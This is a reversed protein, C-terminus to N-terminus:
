YKIIVKKNFTTYNTEIKILYSGESISKVPIRITDSLPLNVANWSAVTQGAINILYVQKVQISSPTNIYIENTTQLYNVMIDKFDTDVTSLTTDEQFVLFFRNSYHGAELTIQFSIDNFQTYTGHLADYIFIEIDEEFNELSDLQIEITGGYTLDIDLPYSKTEDFSGVGQIIYKEGEINFSMDNSFTDNNLADYGYDVADTAVNNDMFGLLLHRKANEPSVFDIRIYKNSNETEINTNTTRMFISNGGSEKVFARQNNNFQITGGTANGTVFFGQGVPVYRRPIKNADGVGNINPPSVAATGGTLNLYSYGGEYDALYHSASTSSQEWFYLTGDLLVASNDAIFTHADIASPYPNGVLAQYDPTVPSSIIGNNPQGVFTYNQFSGSNGSGKMTFGLGVSIPTTESIVNWDAYSAEPYNEYLYLWRRSMTVPSTSGNANPSSTWLVPQPNNVITGDQLISGISYTNGDSSVPSGWYNYAFLNATGQQDRQLNGTGSYDVISSSTQLLQSEGVLDLTGNINLYKTILLSQDNTISYTNTDVLLGMLTTTRNGSNINHSTRVINWNVNNTNPIMQVNGNLWTNVSDWNGNDASIYPLPASEEQLSTINSLRGSVGVDGVLYGAAIDSTGQNMQYYADLNSWNLGTIDLGLVSGRVTTNDEIEQNMMERIQESSLAVNWFRLEDMWGNFYNAPINNPRSMAGLLMDNANAAPNPGASSNRQIGDVYLTYSTGNYTIVVHYWRNSTIGNASINYGNAHFSITNNVLRLDYGTAFNNANRKSLITQINGNITNPKVWVEISFSGSLSNNNNFNVFDNNGDFDIYDGCVPFSVNFTSTDDACPAANDLTWTIDYSVGSEGTFTANPDNINSFSFSSGSPVSVATWHGTMNGSLNIVTDDCDTITTTTSASANVFPIVNILISDSAMGCPGTGDPDNTTYTLTVTGSTEGPGITYIANPLSSNDFSGTGGSWIGPTNSSANLAVTNSSSCATIDTGANVTAAENITVIMVDSAFSCVGAPNNTTYTLTVTGNAIDAASPTYINGAFNGTGSTSWSASSASGGFSAPTLDVTDNSCITQNGGTTVTAAPNVTITVTDTESACPGAPNNSTLTLTVTGSTISPTYSANLDNPNSFSGSPASWTASGASGGISGNLVINGDSCITQNVGAYVTPAENITVVMSDSVSSCIGDSPNNTYTLTVTGNFIDAASPTYTNGSFTGNGSTSWTAVANTGGFSGSSLNVTEGECITIDSPAVITPPTNVNITVSENLVVPCNNNSGPYAGNTYRVRNLTYTTTVTPSVSLTYNGSADLIAQTNGSGDNYRIQANPTGSFTINTSDGECLTVESSTIEAEPEELIHIQMTSELPSCWFWSDAILSVTIVDGPQASPPITYTSTETYDYIDTYIFCWCGWSWSRTQGIYHTSFSGGAGNDDWTWENYNLGGDDGAMTVQTTGACVYIDPGADIDSITFNFLVTESISSSTGCANTATVTITELFALGNVSLIVENTGQGSQISFGSTTTWNYTEVNPDLPVSYIAETVPCFFSSPGNINSPTLPVGNYVTIIGSISDGPGCGTTTVTYNYTGSSTTSGSITYVGTGANFSGNIGTPLAPTSTLVAGTAGSNLQFELNLNDVNDNCIGDDESASILNITADPGVSITGTATASGCGIPTVTYNFVGIQTPTGSITFSGATYTGTVGTPIGTISANTADSINYIIDTLSDGNCVTQINNGTTLNFTVDPNVTMTISESAPIPDACALSSTIDVTIVEGNTVTTSSYSNTNGGVAVGDEYWQYTPSGGGNTLGTVFFTLNDGSCAPNASANLTFSVPLLPNVTMIVTNSVTFTDCSGSTIEAYIDDGNNLGTTTYTASNNGVSIGNVFWEYQPNTGLNTGSATFTVSQGQCIPSAPTSTITATANQVNDLVTVTTNCTSSNGYSDTVTLTVNNTGIDSCDFDTINTDFSLSGCADTSSNNIADEAISANGSADLSITIPQCIAIPAENDEVVVDFSCTSTSGNGDDATVDVTTTGIPFDYPFSIPTGSVEYSIIPSANCFDTATVTFSLTADCEGADTNYIPNPTPCTIVPATNDIVTVQQTCTNTLGANDTVTWIVTHNGVPLPLQAALNNTVTAIGCNDNTTPTGLTVSTIECNTDANVVVASPCTITPAENDIVTITFSCVSTNGLGDNATYELTTTGIPFFDGSTLGTIDTQTVTTTGCIDTATPITYNVNAGCTGPDNNVSTSSPCSNFTPATVDDIIIDQNQTATNGYGDDYTWTITTTGQTTIPLTANHTVTVTGCNDTATPPTLSTVECEATIDALTAIDPVPATVDDIIVDQNQTATNGNGDDYTWTITTTGQTTIPLTANHTVTVTGCNDTATPPTLSTVECEATIDALTAVDPLPASVDDIVIDQNQTSTNGNGDDYTWTITTTGQTTIPLTANNTVTVTGCNDTATPPTLSTVECEATIDALTAVDPLPASVDNIIVDQNQTAMNGNGDDYTWTITTTGQTTIPLTANHTVTVTGCNDTATPPTLSTVECTATIDALTAVDPVPASVDNIIVDQNQTATNGNGDDYTWIITTTGQTTIPLTANNTVTVTGCNDTATPATLSTVECEETIDALTAVDPLPASVDDIVIDQNQTSTNGNGDDYNWTITTTGQTTIPLTANNTVTVTGCNDTATPPTLSTVECEATIDALTAVDPVPALVDNIIVDQNQTSTNGNGDDYTWTITTTGQITIPLTANNTVTVTGCNDTATPPTLSTIECEATIDALTAVDPVPASVDNIIVDQNQTATNGNGDDYTWIITTTGQTTIPLTANHTVTVTGCSDTATPPTLSTVECTATIDALTAVDPVPASVDNIIVDQNQTSTNGNGDNYTWTITTTGQTTIPLTANHTVTVTGCADTATPPTLSTVECTATIDTLTAVDPTPALNDVVNVTASCSDTNGNGDDITLTVTHSGLDACTFATQSLSLGLTGSGCIISGNDIDSGLLTANGSADLALTFPTAICTATPPNTGGDIISWGDSAIMNARAATAAASCYKSNGGHFNVGNQLTLSNWAILINEYNSTSLTVDLFMNIMNTANSIDWNSLDQDFSSASRFMSRMNTANSVDWSSIDQNFADAEFFTGEMVTVSSVDWSNIDQNFSDASYFMRVMDTVNSVNWSSIDQNFANANAFMDSMNTVTSVDWHNIPSNFSNTVSFMLRMSTVNSLDPADFPLITNFNLNSCGLFSREMSSWAITGWQNVELIKDKDGSNNFYIRPFAGQIGITYTGAVGFDHTVDGTIGFQDFTGDNDWDVDYNYGVGITPITISTANSTGPNDTKWTTIFENQADLSVSFTLAILFQILLIYSKKM